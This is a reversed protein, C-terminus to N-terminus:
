WSWGRVSVDACNYKDAPSVVTSLGEVGIAGMYVCIEDGLVKEEIILRNITKKETIPIKVQYCMAFQTVHLWM